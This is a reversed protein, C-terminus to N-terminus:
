TQRAAYQILEKFVKRAKDGRNTFEFVRVGGDYCAKMIKKSTEVDPNYFVPVMGTDTVAKIVQSKSYTAM